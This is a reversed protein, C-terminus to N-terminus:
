MIAKVLWWFILVVVLIGLPIRSFTWATELYFWTHPDIKSQSDRGVADRSNELEDIRKYLQRYNSTAEDAGERAAKVSAAVFEKYTSLARFGTDPYHSVPVNPKIADADLMTKLQETTLKKLSHKGESKPIKAYWVNPNFTPKDVLTTAAVPSPTYYQSEGEDPVHLFSLRRSALNLRELDVIIERVNQYRQSPQKATMKVIILDLRDPVDPNQSRATPFAGREKAQIVEVLTQGRFPPNGTLLCYFLCGLAFVDSRADVNKANRAQELPMYWPTGIAHGTQTLAMDEDDSKVMGLDAIKIEGISSILINEPKIDRHIIGQGHAHELGQAIALTLAVADPVPVKTLRRLWSQLNRGDIFEMAVYHCGAVEGVGYAQVIYRHDMQALARAERYLREVLRPHKAVHPFLVKLAVIREFSIQRARYVAGMAGEGLKSLLQFDGLTVGVMPKLNPGLTGAPPTLDSVETEPEVVKTAGLSAWAAEQSPPVDFATRLVDAADGQAADNLQSAKRDNPM